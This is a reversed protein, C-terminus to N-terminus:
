GGVPGSPEASEGFMMTSTDQSHAFTHLGSWVEKLAYRVRHSATVV